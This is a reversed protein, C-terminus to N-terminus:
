RRDTENRGRGMKEEAGRVGHLILDEVHGCLRRMNSPTGAESPTFCRGRANSKAVGERMRKIGGNGSRAGAIGGPEDIGFLDGVLLPEVDAGGGKVAAVVRDVLVRVELKAQLIDAPLKDPREEMCVREIVGFLLALAVDPEIARM